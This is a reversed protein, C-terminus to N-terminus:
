FYNKIKVRIIALTKHVSISKFLVKLIVPWSNGIILLFLVFIWFEESYITPDLHDVIQFVYCAQEPKLKLFLASSCHAPIKIPNFLTRTLSQLKKFLVSRRYILTFISPFILFTFCILTIKLSCTLFLM